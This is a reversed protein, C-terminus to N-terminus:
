RLGGCIRYRIRMTTADVCLSVEWDGRRALVRASSDTVNWRQRGAIEVSRGPSLLSAGWGGHGTFLSALERSVLLVGGPIEHAKALEEILQVLSATRAMEGLAPHLPGALCAAELAESSQLGVRIVPVGHGELLHVLQGCRRSAEDVTAPVYRGEKWWQALVTGRLVVTPFLRVGDPALHCVVQGSALDHAQSAGPLFQMLQVVLRFGFTRVSQCATLAQQGDYGRGIVHLVQDEFSQIGLEVTDVGHERLLRLQSTTVHLPHTSIRIGSIRGSSKLQAAQSLLLRQEEPPLATFTGGFFALEPATGDGTSPALRSM